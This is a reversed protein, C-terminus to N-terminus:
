AVPATTGSQLAEGVKGLAALVKAQDSSLGSTELDAIQRQIRRDSQSEYRTLEYMIKEEAGRDTEGLLTAYRHVYSATAASVTEYGSSVWARADACLEPAPLGAQQAGDAVASHVLRTLARDSWHLRSVARAFARDRSYEVHGAAGIAADTVEDGIEGESATPPVGPAPKPMNALVGPCEAHLRTALAEIAAIAAPFGKVEARTTAYDERLYSATAAADDASVQALAVPTSLWTFLAATVAVVWM